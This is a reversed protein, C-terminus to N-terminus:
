ALERHEVIVTRNAACLAAAVMEAVAVSRHRGGYCGIALDTDPNNVVYRMIKTLVQRCKPDMKVFEQVEANKGTLDRLSNVNHPNVLLRVDFVEGSPIGGCGSKFGFSTIKM